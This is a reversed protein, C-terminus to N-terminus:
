PLVPAKRSTTAEKTNARSVPGSPVAELDPLPKESDEQLNESESVMPQAHPIVMTEADPPPATNTDKRVLMFGDREEVHANM